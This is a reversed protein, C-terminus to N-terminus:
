IEEADLVQVYIGGEISSVLVVKIENLVKVLYTHPVDPPNAKIKEIAQDGIAELRDVESQAEDLVRRARPLEHRSEVLQKALEKVTKPPAMTPTNM